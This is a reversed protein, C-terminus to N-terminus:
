ERSREKIQDEVNGVVVARYRKKREEADVQTSRWTKHIHWLMAIYWFIKETESLLLFLNQRKIDNCSDKM